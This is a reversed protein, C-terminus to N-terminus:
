KIIYSNNCATRRPVKDLNEQWEQASLWVKQMKYCAYLNVKLDRYDKLDMDKRQEQEPPKHNLDTNDHTENLTSKMVDIISIISRAKITMRIAPNCWWLINLFNHLKFKQYLLFILYQSQVFSWCFYISKLFHFAHLLWQVWYIFINLELEVLLLLDTCHFGEIM